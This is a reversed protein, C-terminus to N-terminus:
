TLIVTIEEMQHRWYEQYDKNLLGAILDAAERLPVTAVIIPELDPNICMVVHYIGQQERVEYTIM